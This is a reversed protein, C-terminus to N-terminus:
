AADANRKQLRSEGSQDAAL